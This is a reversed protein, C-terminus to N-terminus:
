GIYQDSAGLLGTHDRHQDMLRIIDETSNSDHEFVQRFAAEDPDKDAIVRGLPAVLNRQDRLAFSGWPVTRLGRPVHGCTRQVIEGTKLHDADFSVNRWTHFDSQPLHFCGISGHGITIIGATDKDRFSMKLDLSDTTEHLEVDGYEGSRIYADQVHEGEERFARVQAAPSLPSELDISTSVHIALVGMAKEVSFKSRELLRERKRHATEVEKVYRRESRGSM